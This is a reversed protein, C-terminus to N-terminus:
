IRGMAAEVIRVCLQSMEIGVKAAAKPLCSHVTFGPINNVELVWAEGGDGLIFDVRGFGRCGIAEFCDVAASQIKAALDRDKITDFLYEFQCFRDGVTLRIFWVFGTRVRPKKQLGQAHDELSVLQKSVQTLRIITM